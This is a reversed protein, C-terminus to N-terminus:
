GDLLPGPAVTRPVLDEVRQSIREYQVTHAILVRGPFLPTLIAHSGHVVSRALQPLRNPLALGSGRSRAFPCNGVSVEDANLSALASEIQFARKLTFSAAGQWTFRNEGCNIAPTRRVDPALDRRAQGAAQAARKRVSTRSRDERRLKLPSYSAKAATAKSQDRRDHPAITHEGKTATHGSRGRSRPSAAQTLSRARRQSSVSPPRAALSAVAIPRLIRDHRGRAIRADGRRECEPNFSRLDFDSPVVPRTDCV